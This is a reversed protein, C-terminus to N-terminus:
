LIFFFNTIKGNIKKSNKEIFILLKKENLGNINVNMNLIIKFSEILIM